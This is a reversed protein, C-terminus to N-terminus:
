EETDQYKSELEKVRALANDLLRCMIPCRKREQYLALGEQPSGVKAVFDAGLMEAVEEPDLKRAPKDTVIIKKM